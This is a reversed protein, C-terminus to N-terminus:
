TESGHSDVRLMGAKAYRWAEGGLADFCPECYWKGEMEMACWNCYHAGCRECNQDAPVEMDELPCTCLPCRKPLTESM